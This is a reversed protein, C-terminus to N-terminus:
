ASTCCTAIIINYTEEIRKPVLDYEEPDVPALFPVKSIELTDLDWKTTSRNNGNVFWEQVQDISFGDHEYHDGIRIHEPHFIQKADDHEYDMVIIRGGNNLYKDKIVDNMMSEPDKIHHFALLTYIVDFGPEDYGKDKIGQCYEQSHGVMSNLKHLDIQSLDSCVASLKCRSRHSSIDLRTSIIYMFSLFLFHISIM